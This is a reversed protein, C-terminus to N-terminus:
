LSTTSSASTSSQSMTHTFRPTRRHFAKGLVFPRFDPVDLGVVLAGLLFVGAIGVHVRGATVEVEMQHRGLALVAGLRFLLDCLNAAARPRVAHAHHLSEHRGARLEEFALFLTFDLGIEGLRQVKNPFVLVRFRDYGGHHMHVLFRRMHVKRKDRQRRIPPETGLFDDAVLLFQCLPLVPEPLVHDLFIGVQLTAFAGAFGPAVM